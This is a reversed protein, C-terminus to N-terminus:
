RRLWQSNLEARPSLRERLRGDAEKGLTLAWGKGGVGVEMGQASGVGEWWLDLHLYM